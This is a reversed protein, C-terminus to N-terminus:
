PDPKKTAASPGFRGRDTSWASALHPFRLALPFALRYPGLSARRQRGTERGESEDRKRTLSHEPSRGGDCSLTESQILLRRKTPLRENSTESSSSRFANAAQPAVPAVM